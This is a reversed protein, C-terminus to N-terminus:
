YVDIIPSAAQGWLWWPTSRNARFARHRARAATVPASPRACGCAKGAPGTRVPAPRCRNATGCRAPSSGGSHSAPCMPQNASNQIPRLVCRARPGCQGPSGARSAEMSGCESRQHLGISTGCSARQTSSKGAASAVRAQSSSVSSLVRSSSSLVGAILVVRQVEVPQRQEMFVQPALLEHGHCLRQCQRQLHLKGEPVCARSGSSTGAVRQTSPEGGM